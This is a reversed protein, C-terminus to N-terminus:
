EPQQMGQIIKVFAGNPSNFYATARLIVPESQHLFGGLSRGWTSVTVSTTGKPKITVNLPSSTHVVYAGSGSSQLDLRRLTLTNDTPNSVAIQYQLSIPGPFYFVDASQNLPTIQVAVPSSSDNRPTSSCAAALALTLLLLVTKRMIGRRLLRQELTFNLVKM